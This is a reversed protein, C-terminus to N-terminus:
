SCSLQLSEIRGTPGLKSVLGGERANPGFTVARDRFMRHEYVTLSAKPGLVLSDIERRLQRGTSKDLSQLQMPGVITVMNGKFEREDYLQAWCGAALAPTQIEVPVLVVTPEPQNDVQTDPSTVDVRQATSCAALAAVMGSAALLKLIPNTM